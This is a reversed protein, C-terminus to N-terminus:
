EAARPGDLVSILPSGGDPGHSTRQMDDNPQREISGGHVTRREANSITADFERASIVARKSKPSCTPESRSCAVSSEQSATGDSAMASVARPCTTPSAALAVALEQDFTILPGGQVSPVEM